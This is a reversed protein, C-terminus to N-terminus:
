TYWHSSKFHGPTQQLSAHITAFSPCPLKIQIPRANEAFQDFIGNPLHGAVLSYIVSALTMDPTPIRTTVRSNSSRRSPKIYVDFGANRLDEDPIPEDLLQVHFVPHCAQTPEVFDYHLAQVLSAQGDPKNNPVVFYNLYVTSRVLRWDPKAFTELCKVVVDLRKNKGLQRCPWSKLYFCYSFEASTPQASQSFCQRLPRTPVQIKLGANEVATRFAEVLNEYASGINNPVIQSSM